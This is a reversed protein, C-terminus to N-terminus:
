PFSLNWRNRGGGPGDDGGDSPYDFPPAQGGGSVGGSAAAAANPQLTPVGGFSPQNNVAGILVPAPEKSACGNVADHFIRSCTPSPDTSDCGPGKYRHKCRQTVVDVVTLGRRSMDSIVTVRAASRDVQGFRAHGTVLDLAEFDGDARRVLERVVAPAPYLDRAPDSLVPGYTDELNSLSFDTGDVSEGEAIQIDSTLTADAVYSEGGAEESASSALIHPPEDEGEALPLTVDLAFYNSFVTEDKAAALEASLARPM